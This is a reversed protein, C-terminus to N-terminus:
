PYLTLTTAATPETFAFRQGRSPWLIQWSPGHIEGLQNGPWISGSAISWTFTFAGVRRVISGLDAGAVGSGTLFCIRNGTFDTRDYMWVSTGSCADDVVTSESIVTYGWAETTPGPHWEREANQARQEGATIAHPEGVVLTGDPQVMVGQETFVTDDDVASSDDVPSPAPSDVACAPVALMLVLLM